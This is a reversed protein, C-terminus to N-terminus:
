QQDTLIHACSEDNCGTSCGQMLFLKFCILFYDVEEKFQMFSCSATEGALNWNSPFLTIFGAAPKEGETIECVM